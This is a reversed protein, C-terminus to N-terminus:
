AQSWRRKQGLFPASCAALVQYSLRYVKLGHWCKVQRCVFSERQM